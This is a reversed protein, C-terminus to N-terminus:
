TPDHEDTVRNVGTSVLEGDRAVVAGFPGGGDAVNRVSLSIAKRM